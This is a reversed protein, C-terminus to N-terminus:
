CNIAFSKSSNIFTDNYTLCQDNTSSNTMNINYSKLNLNKENLFSRDVSLKFLANSIVHKKDFQYRVDLRFQFFYISVKILCLNLKNTNNFLFTTQKAININIAHNTFVIIFHRFAEILHRVRKVIWVLDIMKLKIFWYREKASILMRNLFMIFEIKSRKFNNFDTELKLHYIIVEIDWRKFVNM